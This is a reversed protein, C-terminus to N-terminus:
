GRFVLALVNVDETQPDVRFILRKQVIEATELFGPVEAILLHDATQLFVAHIDGGFFHQFLEGVADPCAGM